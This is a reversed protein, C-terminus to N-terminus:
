HLTDLVQRNKVFIFPSTENKRAFIRGNRVWVFRYSLEKCKARTAAHLAKNAPSLHESVYVPCSDGAIGLLSSSLRNKPHSRNYRTVASYFEDRSRSGKLKVIISRPRKNDKNISAVRTCKLVDIDNLKHSVVEAIKNVIALVNESRHYPVGHIELNAERAQQEMNNLRESLDEVTARLTSCESQLNKYDNMIKSTTKVIDDYQNSVYQVSNQLENLKESIPALEARVAARVELKIMKLFESDKPDTITSSASTKRRLTVNEYVGADDEPSSVTELAINHPM